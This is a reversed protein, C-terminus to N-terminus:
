VYHDIYGIFKECYEVSVADEYVAIFDTIM